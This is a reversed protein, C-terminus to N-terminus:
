DVAGRDRQFAEIYWTQVAVSQKRVRAIFLMADDIFGKTFKMAKEEDPELRPVHQALRAVAQSLKGCQVEIAADEVELAEVRPLLEPDQEAIAAFQRPHWENVHDRIQTAADAWSRKVADIWAVMDGAVIPTAINSELAELASKLEVDSQPSQRTYM